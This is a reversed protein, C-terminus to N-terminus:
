KKKRLQNWVPDKPKFWQTTTSDFDWEPFNTWEVYQGHCIVCAVPGARCKFMFGCTPDICKFTETPHDVVQTEM